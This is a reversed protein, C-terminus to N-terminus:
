RRSGQYYALVFLRIAASLNAPKNRKIQTILHSPTTDKTVAIEGLAEWFPDELHVSTSRGSVVITRKPVAFRKPARKREGRHVAKDLMARVSNAGSLAATPNSQRQALRRSSLTM